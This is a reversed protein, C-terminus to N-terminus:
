SRRGYATLLLALPVLLAVVYLMPMGWLAIGAVALAV